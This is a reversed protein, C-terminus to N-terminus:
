CETLLIDQRCWRWSSSWFKCNSDNIANRNPKDINLRLTNNTGMTVCEM